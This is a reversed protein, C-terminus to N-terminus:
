VLIRTREGHIQIRDCLQRVSGLERDESRPVFEDLYAEREERAMKAYGLVLGQMMIEEHFSDTGVANRAEDLYSRFDEKAAERALKRMAPLRIGIVHEVGPLLKRNFEKYDEEAFSFLRERIAEVKM